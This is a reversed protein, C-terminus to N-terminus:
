FNLQHKSRPPAPPLGDPFQILSPGLSPSNDLGTEIAKRRTTISSGRKNLEPVDISDLVSEEEAEEMFDTDESSRISGPKKSEKGSRPYEYGGMNLGYGSTDRDMVNSLKRLKKGRTGEEYGINRYSSFKSSKLKQLYRIEDDDEEDYVEDSPSMNTPHKTKHSREHKLGRSAGVKEFSFGTSSFDKWPLGRLSGKGRVPDLNGQEANLPM